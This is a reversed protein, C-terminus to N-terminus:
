HYVNKRLKLPPSSPLWVGDFTSNCFRFLPSLLSLFLSVTIESSLVFNLLSRFKKEIDKDMRSQSESGKEREREWRRKERGNYRKEEGSGGRKVRGKRREM